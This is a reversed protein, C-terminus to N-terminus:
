YGYVQISSVSFTGVTPAIQFGVLSNGSASFGGYEGIGIGNSGASWVSDGNVHPYAGANFISVKGSFGFNSGSTTGLATTALLGTLPVFATTNEAVNTGNVTEMMQTVYGSTAVTTANGQIFQFKIAATATGGLLLNNITVLYNNYVGTISTTDQFVSASATSFNNLLVLGASTWKPPSATGQSTLVLGATTAAIVGLAATGNGYPIGNTSIVNTGLGGSPVALATGSLTLSNAFQNGSGDVTYNRSRLFGGTFAVNLADFGWAATYSQPTVPQQTGILTGTTAMPWYGTPSGFALGYTWGANTTAQAVITMATNEISGPVMDETLQIILLGNKFAVSATTAVVMDIELGEIGTWHSASTGLQAVCNFAAITGSPNGSTGNDNVLATVEAAGAVYFVNATAQNGTTTSITLAAQHVTRNGQLNAGGMIEAVYMAFTGGSGVSSNMNDSVVGFEYVASFSDTQTGALNVFMKVPPQMTTAPTLTFNSSMISTTTAGVFRTGADFTHLGSWTPTTTFIPATTTGNSFFVAGTAGAASVGVASTGNGYLPGNLTLNTTGIGGGSPTLATYNPPAASGASVLPYGATTSAVVSLATTGTGVVVGATGLVTTGTGGAPVGLNGFAPPTGALLPQGVSGAATAGIAAAGNGYLAGYQTLTSTQFPGPLVATGVTSLSITISTATGSTALGTGAAVFQTINYWGADFNTASNKAFIQSTSGGTPLNGSPIALNSITCAYPLGSAKQLFAIMDNASPNLSPLAGPTKGVANVIYDYYTAAATATASNVLLFIESGTYQLAGPQYPPFSPFTGPTPTAM